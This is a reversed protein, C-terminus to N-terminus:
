HDTASSLSITESDSRERFHNLLKLVEGVMMAGSTSM